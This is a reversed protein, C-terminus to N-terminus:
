RVERKLDVTVALHIDISVINNKIKSVELSMFSMGLFKLLEEAKGNFLIMNNAFVWIEKENTEENGNLKLLVDILKKEM